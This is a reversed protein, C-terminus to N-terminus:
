PQAREAATTLTRRVTVAALHRRYAASGHIDSGPTLEATATQAVAAFTEVTPEAGVLEAEAVRARHPVDAVGMLAIRGDAIRGDAGLALTAAVGVLAFDGHRRAVEQFASGASPNATPMRVEVVCEDDDLATTFHGQFFDAAAFTREGRTSRAVVSGDLAALVCPIEASADAHAVTGGITGRTRIAAHGIFPLAEALLPLQDRVVPSREADRERVLAGFAVEGNQVGIESMGSVRNIDVVQAPRALRMALLPVLSQGGAMVKAEDGHEALLSLVEDITDPSHYEFRPLKL